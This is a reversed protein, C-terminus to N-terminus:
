IVGGGVCVCVYNIPPPTSSEICRFQGTKIETLSFMKQKRKFFHAVILYVFSVEGFTSCKAAFLSYGTCKSDIQPFLIGQTKM